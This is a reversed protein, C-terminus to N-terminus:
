SDNFPYRVRISLINQCMIRTKTACHNLFRRDKMEKVRTNLEQQICRSNGSAVSVDVEVTIKWTGLNPQSSLEFDRTIM